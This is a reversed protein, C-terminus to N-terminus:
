TPDSGLSCRSDAELTQQAQNICSPPRRPSNGWPTPQAPLCPHSRSEAGGLRRFVCAMTAASSSHSGPCRSVRESRHQSAAPSGPLRPLNLQTRAGRPRTSARPASPCRAAPVTGARAWVPITKRGGGDRSKTEQAWTPSPPPPVGAKGPHHRQGRAVRRAPRLQSAETGMWAGSSLSCATSGPAPPHAQPRGPGSQAPTRHSTTQGVNPTPANHTQPRSRSVQPYKPDLSAMAGPGERPHRREAGGALHEPAELAGVPLPSARTGSSQQPKQVGFGLVRRPLPRTPVGMTLPRLPGQTTRPIGSAEPSISIRGAPGRVPLNQATFVGQPAPTTTQPCPPPTASHLHLCGCAPAPSKAQTRSHPGPELRSHRAALLSEAWRRGHLEAWSGLSVLHSM